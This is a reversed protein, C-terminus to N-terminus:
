SPQESISIRIEYRKGNHEFWCGPHPPFTRARLLNILDEARYDKHLHIQSAPHLESRKHCVGGAPQPLSPIDGSVIRGCVEQFLNELEIIAKKYLTEGTDLPEISIARQFAIPGSDVSRTVHHITVGFPAKDVLTWFNPDKGRCYPLFSPHTNLFTGRAMSIVRDSLIYPWWALFGIEFSIQGLDELLGGDPKKTNWFLARTGASAWPSLIRKQLGQDLGDRM